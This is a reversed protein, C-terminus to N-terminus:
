LVGTDKAMREYMVALQRFRYPDNKQAPGVPKDAMAAHWEAHWFYYERSDPAHPNSTIAFGQDAAMGGSRLPAGNMGSAKMNGDKGNVVFGMFDAVARWDAGDFGLAPDHRRRRRMKEM